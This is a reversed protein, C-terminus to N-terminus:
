KRLRSSLLTAHGMWGFSPICDTLVVIATPAWITNKLRDLINV